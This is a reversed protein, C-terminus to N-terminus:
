QPNVKRGLQTVSRVLYRRSSYAALGQYLRLPWLSSAGVPVQRQVDGPKVASSIRGPPSYVPV